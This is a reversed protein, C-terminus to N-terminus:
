LARDYSSELASVLRGVTSLVPTEVGLREAEAVVEHAIAGIETRRGAVVDAAMSTIHHGVSGYTVSAHAHVAEVDLDVGSARAVAVVEAFIDEWLGRAWRDTFVDEVTRRLIGTLPAMTAAMALKTWIVVDASVSATTPLGAETMLRAVDRVGEPVQDAGAPAGLETLSEGAATGASASVEGPGHTVAGVTTTGPVAREPGFVEGLRRDNGLGNQITVAWGDAALAHEVSRAADGTAWSKCLFIAVDIEGLEGRPNTTAPVPVVVDELGPRGLRLGHQNIADVHVQNVDVLTVDNGALALHGGVVSGVSGAGVVAWRTTPSM